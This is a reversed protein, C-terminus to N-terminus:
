PTTSRKFFCYRGSLLPCAEAGVLVGFFALVSASAELALGAVGFNVLSSFSILFCSRSAALAFFSASLAALSASFVLFTRSSCRIHIHEFSMVDLDLQIREFLRTVQM